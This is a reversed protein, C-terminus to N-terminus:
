GEVLSQFKPFLEKSAVLYHVPDLEEPIETNRLSPIGSGTQLGAERALLGAAAMDWSKVGNEYFADIEGKIIMCIDLACAAFRRIGFTADMLRTHRAYWEPDFQIPPRGIGIIAEKLDTCPKAQLREGNLFAGEGRVATYTENYFPAEIVGIQVEGQYSFAISVCTHRSGRSFNVTGDIPDIIWLPELYDEPKEVTTSEEEALIHHDPYNRRIAEVILRECAFDTETVLDKPGKSSVDLGSARADVMLQGAERGVGETFKRIAVRDLDVRDGNGM